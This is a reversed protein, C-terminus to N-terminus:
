KLLQIIRDLDSTVKKGPTSSNLENDSFESGDLKVFINRIIRTMSGRANKIYQNKNLKKILYFLNNGGSKWTVKIESDSNNFYRKLHLFCDKGSVYGNNILANFFSDICDQPLKRKGIKSNDFMFYKLGYSKNYNRKANPKYYKNLYALVKNISEEQFTFYKSIIKLTSLPLKDLQDLELVYIKPRSVSHGFEDEVFEEEDRSLYRIVFDSRIKINLGHLTFNAFKKKVTTIKFIAEQCFFDLRFGVISNNSDFEKEFENRVNEFEKHQINFTIQNWPIYEYKIENGFEDIITEEDQDFLYAVPVREYLSILENYFSKEIIAM